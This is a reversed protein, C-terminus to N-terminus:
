PSDPYAQRWARMGGEVNVADFGAELLIKTAKASRAGSRCVVFIQEGQVDQLEALRGALEQVPILRAGEIHGLPGDFEAPTRVDLVFTEPAAALREHLQTVNEAPIAGARAISPQGSGAPIAEGARCSAMTMSLAALLFIGAAQRTRLTAPNIM